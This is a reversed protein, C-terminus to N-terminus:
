SKRAGAEVRGAVTSGEVMKFRPATVDGEVSGTAKLELRELAKVNGKVAGSITITKAILDAAIQAAPGISLSYGGLEIAGSVHGEITLDEESVVKGEIRVNRGIWAVLRRETM